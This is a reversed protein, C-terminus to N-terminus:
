MRCIKIDSNLHDNPILEFSSSLSEFLNIARLNDNSKACQFWSDLFEKKAGNHAAQDFSHIICKGSSFNMGLYSPIVGPGESAQTSVGMMTFYRIGSIGLIDSSLDSCDTITSTEAVRSYFNVKPSAYNNLVYDSIFSVESDALDEGRCTRNKFSSLVEFSGLSTWKGFSDYTTTASFDLGPRNLTKTLDIQGSFENTSAQAFSCSVESNTLNVKKVDLIKELDSLTRLFGTEVLIKYFDFSSRDNALIIKESTNKILVKSIEKWYNREQNYYSYIPSDIFVDISVLKNSENLTRPEDESFNFTSKKVEESGAALLLALPLIGHTLNKSSDLESNEVNIEMSTLEQNYKTSVRDVLGTIPEIENFNFDYVEFLTIILDWLLSMKVNFNTGGLDLENQYHVSEPINSFVTNLISWDQKRERVAKLINKVLNQVRDSEINNLIKPEGNIIYLAVNEYNKENGNWSRDFASLVADAGFDSAFLVGYRKLLDLSEIAEGTSKSEKVATLVSSQQNSPDIQVGSDLLVRLTSYGGNELALSMLNEPLLITKELILNLLEKKHHDMFSTSSLIKEFSVVSKSEQNNAFSALSNISERVKLIEYDTNQELAQVLILVHQDFSYGTSPLAPRHSKWIRVAGNIWDLFGLNTYSRYSLDTIAIQVLNNRDYISGENTSVMLAETLLAEYALKSDDNLNLEFKSDMFPKKIDEISVSINKSRLLSLKEKLWWLDYDLDTIRSFSHVANKSDFESILRKLLDISKLSSSIRLLEDSVQELNEKKNKHHFVLYDLFSIDSNKDTLKLGMELASEDRLPMLLTPPLYNEKFFALSKKVNKSQILIEAESGLRLVEIEILNSIENGRINDISFFVDKNEDNMLPKFVIAGAALLDKVIIANGMQVAKILPTYGDNDYMNVDAGNEIAKKVELVDLKLIAEHLTLSAEIKQDKVSIKPQDKKASCGLFLCSVILTHLILKVNKM